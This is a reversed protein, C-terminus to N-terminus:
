AIRLWSLDDSHEIRVLQHWCNLNKADGNRHLQFVFFTHCFSLRLQPLVGVLQCALIHHMPMHWFSNM